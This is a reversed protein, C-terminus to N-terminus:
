IGYTFTVLLNNRTIDQYTRSEDVGYNDGYTKWWGHVYTIDIGLVSSAVFGIGATLYKKDFESPDNKFASPLNIFGARIKMDFFPINYEAGISYSVVSRFNENILRNNDVRQSASLGESFEMQTYDVLTLQGAAKLGAIEYALGGSLEFPTTIDYEIESIYPDISYVVSNGFYSSANVYYDERITYHTPLKISAGFQSFRNIRYLLGFKVDWGVLDWDIAERFEFSEFNESFGDTVLPGTYYNRTDDEYYERERKFTGSYINLTAGFFLNKAIEVAGSLNWSDIGGKDIISGSQNLMGDVITSDYLWNDNFDFVGFSLYLDYAIDDNNWTLNQIMSNNGPNFGDFRVTNNFDKVRSYGAAFVMSGRKAPMPIILGFQSFHNSNNSFNTQNSFFTVNNELTNYFFGGTLQAKKSLAFSAPNLLGSGYDGGLAIGSNGMALISANTFIGSESLRLADNPNQASVLGTFLVAVLSYKILRKM